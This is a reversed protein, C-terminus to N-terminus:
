TSAVPATPLVWSMSLSARWLTASASSASMLHFIRSTPLTDYRGEVTHVVIHQHCSHGSPDSVLPEKTQDPPIEGGPHHDLSDRLGPLFPGRLAARQRRQEGVDQQVIQVLLQFPPTVAEAPIGVVTVDVHLRLRGPFPHHLRDGPVQLLPKTQLDIPVLTRHITRPVALEEPIRHCRM